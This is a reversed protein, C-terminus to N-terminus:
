IVSCLGGGMTVRITGNIQDQFNDGEPCAVNINCDERNSNSSENFYGMIDEYDHILSGINLRTIGLEDEPINVEIIVQDGKTIGTPLIFSDKNNESTFSGLFMTREQDYIFLTSNESLYFDDFIFGIGYARPSSVGLLYTYSGNDIIPNSIDLVNLNVAYEEGFQFVM